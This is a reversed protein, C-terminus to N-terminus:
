PLVLPRILCPLSESSRQRDAFEATLSPIALTRLATAIQAGSYPKQIYHWEVPFDHAKPTGSTMLLRILPWREAIARALAMGNQHGHARIEAFVVRIDRRSELITMAKDTTPADLAAYGCEEVLQITEMRIIAEVEVVLVFPKGM